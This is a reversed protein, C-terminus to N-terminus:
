VSKQARQHARPPPHPRYGDATYHQVSFHSPHAHVPTIEVGKKHRKDEASHNVYQQDSFSRLFPFPFTNKADQYM